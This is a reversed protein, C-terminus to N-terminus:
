VLVQLPPGVPQVFPISGALVGEHVEVGVSVTVRHTVGECETMQQATSRIGEAERIFPYAGSGRERVPILPRGVRDSTTFHSERQQEQEHSAMLNGNGNGSAQAFVARSTMQSRKAPRERRTM